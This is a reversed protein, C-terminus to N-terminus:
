KTATTIHSVERIDSPNSYDILHLGDAAVVIAIGQIAIVDTPQDCALQKLQLLQTSLTADFVKVGASGDCIFLLNGDKSLGQPANLMYSKILKPSTVNTIDIIDLQNQIGGCRGNGRLTVYATNNDAIVPDCTRAHTFQGLQQPQDANQTSYIFMGTGSGIFLKDQYPFITEINGNPLTVSRLYAPAAPNVTNFVKLDNYSVTYLRQPEMAFRSMSGTIGIGATSFAAPMALSSFILLGGGGRPAVENYRQNIVTDVKIWETIIRSTDATFGYYVRHPFVGPIFQKAVVHAPDSIDITVLDTYCDAYLYNDKIALDVCGPISIFSIKRPAHPDSIDIVHVGRDVDNVFVYHDKWVIKGTVQISEPAASRVNTRVADKTKYVPRYFSYQEKVTDKSCSIGLVMVAALCALITKM